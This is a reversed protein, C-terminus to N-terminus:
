NHKSGRLFERTIVVHRAHSYNLNKEVHSEWLFELLDFTDEDLEIEGGEPMLITAYAFQADDETGGGMPQAVTAELAAFGDILKIMQQWESMKKPQDPKEQTSALATHLMMFAINSKQELFPSNIDYKEFCLKIM